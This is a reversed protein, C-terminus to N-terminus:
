TEDAPVPETVSLFWEHFVVGPPAWVVGGEQMVPPPTLIEYAECLRIFRIIAPLHGELARKALQHAFAEFPQMRCKKGNRTVPVPQELLATIEEQGAKKAKPRGKPNGSQGKKFRTHKPPKRYGVEYGGDPTKKETM